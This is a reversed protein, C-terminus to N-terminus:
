APIVGGIRRTLEQAAGKLAVPVPGDWSSAFTTALGFSTLALIVEGNGGFIPAAFSVLGPYREGTTRALKRRRM